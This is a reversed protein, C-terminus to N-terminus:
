KNGSMPMHALASLPMHTHESGALGHSCGRTCEKVQHSIMVARAPLTPVTSETVRVPTTCRIRRSEPIGSTEAAVVRLRISKAVHSMAGTPARMATSSMPVVRHGSMPLFASLPM